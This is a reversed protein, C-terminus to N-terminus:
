TVKAQATPQKDTVQQRAPLLRPIASHTHRTDFRRHRRRATAARPAGAVAACSPASGHLGRAPKLTFVRVFAKFGQFFQRSFLSQRM